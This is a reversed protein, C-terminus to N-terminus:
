PTGTWQVVRKAGTFRYRTIFSELPEEVVENKTLCSHIVSTGNEGPLALGVHGLGRERGRVFVLDGAEIAAAAVRTGYRRQDGTHKPLLVQTVECLISQVLGSCDAADHTNGGWLYPRGLRPRAAPLLADTPLAIPVAAGLSPRLFHEWPSDPRDGDASLTDTDTWGITGDPLQVLTRDNRSAFSRVWDPGSWQTQLDDGTSDRHLDAVTGESIFLWDSADPPAALDSLVLPAQVDHDPFAAKLGDAYATAQRALLVGGTSVIRDGELSWKTSDVLVPYQASLQTRVQEVIPDLPSM